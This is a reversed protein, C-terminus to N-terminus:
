KSSVSFFSAKFSIRLFFWFQIMITWKFILKIRLFNLIKFSTIPLLILIKRIDWVFISAVNGRLWIIKSSNVRGYLSSLVSCPPPMIQKTLSSIGELSNGLTFGQPLMFFIKTLNSKPDFFHSLDPEKLM